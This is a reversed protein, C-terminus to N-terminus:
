GLGHVPDVSEGLGTEICPISANDGLGSRCWILTKGWVIKLAHPQCKIRWVIKLQPQCQKVGSSLPNVSNGGSM